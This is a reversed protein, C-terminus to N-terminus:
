VENEEEVLFRSKNCVPWTKRSAPIATTLRRVVDQCFAIPFEDIRDAYSVQHYHFIDLFLSKLKHEGAPTSFYIHKICALYDCYRDEYVATKTAMSIPTVLLECIIGSAHNQLAPIQFREAATWVKALTELQGESVLDDHPTDPFKQFYLWHTILGFAETTVDELKMIGSTGEALTSKFASRFFTSHHTILAKHLVFDQSWTGKGATITVLKQPKTFDLAPRKQLPGKRPKKQVTKHLPQASSM